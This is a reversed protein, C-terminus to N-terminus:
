VQTFEQQGAPPAILTAAIATYVAPHNLLQMHNLGAIETSDDALHDATASSMRVLGDGLLRGLTSQGGMNSGIFPFHAQPPRLPVHPPLPRKPHHSKGHRLDKIGTSRDDALEALPQTVDFAQLVRVGLHAAKELPAGMHPSGLCFVHSVKGVWDAGHAVGHSCASRAVLGGMSHGILVLQEVPHPWAECLRALQQALLRGNQEIRIGTNYRVFLPSYGQQQLREAYPRNHAHDGTSFFNWSTEDCCLGHIFVVLRGDAEPFHARLAPRNLPLPQDHDYFGMRLALPNRQRLLYDGFAGNVASVLQSPLARPQLAPAQTKEARQLLVDLMRFAAGGIGRVAGYVGDTINDHLPRVVASGANVVPTRALHRFSVDAIRQHMQQVRHTIREFGTGALAVAGRIQHWGQPSVPRYPSPKM